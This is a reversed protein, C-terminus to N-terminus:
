DSLEIGHDFSDGREALIPLLRDLIEPVKPNNDHLLVIDSPAVTSALREAIAPSDESRRDGWEGGEVSWLMCRLNLSRSATLSALSLIGLPPRFVRPESGVANAITEQCRILDRRYARFPLVHDNPHSYSHNGLRHGRAMIERLLDPRKEAERGVVFFIARAGFRELHALIAPTIEPHPGDDFTLLISRRGRDKLRRQAVGAPIM